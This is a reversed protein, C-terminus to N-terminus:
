AVTTKQLAIPPPPKKGARTSTLERAKLRVPLQASQGRRRLPREELRALRLAVNGDLGDTKRQVLLQTVEVAEISECVLHTGM